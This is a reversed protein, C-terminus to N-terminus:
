LSAGMLENRLRETRARLKKLQARKTTLKNYVVRIEENANHWERKATNLNERAEKTSTFQPNTRIGKIYEDDLAAQAQRLAMTAREKRAKARGHTVKLELEEREVVPLAAKSRKYENRRWTKLAQQARRRVDAEKLPHTASPPMAMLPGPNSHEEQRIIAAYLQARAYMLHRKARGKTKADPATIFAEFAADATKTAAAITRRDNFYERAMTRIIPTAWDLTTIMSPAPQTASM